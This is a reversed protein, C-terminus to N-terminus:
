RNAPTQSPQRPQQKASNTEGPLSAGEKELKAKILGELSRIRSFSEERNIKKKGWGWGTTVLYKNILNQLDDAYEDLTERADRYEGNNFTDIVEQLVKEVEARIGTDKVRKLMNKIDRVRFITSELDGPNFGQHFEQMAEQAEEFEGNNYHNQVAEINQKMGAIAQGVREMNFGLNQVAKTKATRELRKLSQTIQKIEQPIQLRARMANLIEWYQADRFEQIADRIDSVDANRNGIINQFKDLDALIENLKSVDAESAIKKLQRLYNRKIDNRM